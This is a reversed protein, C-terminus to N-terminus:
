GQNDRRLRWIQFIIWFAFVFGALAALDFFALTRQSWGYQAGILGALVWAVATIAIVLAAQRGKRAQAKENSM